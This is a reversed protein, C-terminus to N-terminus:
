EGDGRKVREVMAAHGKEAEDWTCYRDMEMDLPGGFVMTEFLVPPGEDAWNHDLGLFVTSVKVGDIDDLAVHRNDSKYMRGWERIDDTPVPERDKLVYWTM